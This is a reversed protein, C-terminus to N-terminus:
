KKPMSMGTLVSQQEPTLQKTAEGVARIFAIRQATRLQEIEQLKSQVKAADPQDAGTLAWLEQEGQEIRREANGRELLTREKIRNLVTQQEPSLKLQPQDLFFGTAGIHYLHSAGPTGPLSSVSRPTRPRPPVSGGGMAMGGGATAGAGGSSSGGMNMAGAAPTSPSMSGMGMEGMMMGQPMKMGDPPMGMEGKDMDMMPMGGPMPDKQAGVGPKMGGMEGAPMGGPPMAGMEGMMRRGPAPTPSDGAAPTQPAQKQQDLAFQLKAIQARLEAIQKQLDQDQVAAATMQGTQLPTHTAGAPMTQAMALGPLWVLSGAAIMAAIKPSGASPYSTFPRMTTMKREPSELSAVETPHWELRLARCLDNLALRPGLCCGVHWLAARRYDTLSRKLSGGITATKLCAAALILWIGCPM